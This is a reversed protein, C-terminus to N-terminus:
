LLTSCFVYIGALSLLIIICLVCSNDTEDKPNTDPYSDDDREENIENSVHDNGENMERTQSELYEMTMENYIVTIETEKHNM